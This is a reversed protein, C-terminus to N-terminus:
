QFLSKIFFTFQDVGQKLALVAHTGIIVGDCFNSAIKIDSASKIGFGLYVKSKQRCYNIKTITEEELKFNGGTIGRKSIFYIFDNSKEIALDIDSLRSEPTVFKIINSHLNEEFLASERLPVDAVILGKIGGLHKKFRDFGYSYFINAYTMIYIDKKFIKKVEDLSELFDYINYQKLVEFAASELAPGDAIPDSFAFGVELFDVNEKQCVEVASLFEDKSPYNALLYIGINM